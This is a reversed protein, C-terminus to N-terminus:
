KIKGFIRTESTLTMPIENGTLVMKGTVNQVFRSDIILGTEIEIDMSGTQTGNMEIQMDQIEPHRSAKSKITADIEIHAQEDSLSVLKYTSVVQMDMFGVNTAFTRQWSDGPKVPKEPYVNLTQEMMQRISSDSLQFSASDGPALHQDVKLIEGKTDVVISFPHNVIQGAGALEAPQKTSDQSDFEMELGNSSSKIYFRDYNITLKKNNGAANEVIYSSQLKMHQSIESNMGNMQQQITQRSDMLYVYTTGAPFNLGLNVAKNKNSGEKCGLFFLSTIATLFWFYRHAM